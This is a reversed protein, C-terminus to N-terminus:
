HSGSYFAHDRIGVCARAYQLLSAPRLCQCKCMFPLSTSPLSTSPLATSSLCEADMHGSMWAAEDLIGIATTASRMIDKYMPSSIDHQRFTAGHLAINMTRREESEHLPPVLRPRSLSSTDPQRSGAKSKEEDLVLVVGEYVTRWIADDELSRQHKDLGCVFCCRVADGYRRGFKADVMSLVADVNTFELVEHGTGVPKLSKAANQVEHIPAKMCLEILLIGLAFVTKNSIMSASSMLQSAAPDSQHQQILPQAKMEISIFPYKTLLAGDREFLTIDTCSWPKSLWPTDHLRLVGFALATALRCSDGYSLRATGKGTTLVDALSVAALSDDDILRVKPRKLMHRTMTADVLHGLCKGGKVARFQKLSPCLNHVERLNAPNSPPPTHVTAPTNSHSLEGPGQQSTDMATSVEFNVPCLEAEVLSWRVHKAASKSTVAHHVIVRCLPEERESAARDVNRVHLSVKHPVQCSRRLSKELVSFITSAYAQMHSFKQNRPRSIDVASKQQNDLTILSENNWAIEDLLETYERKKAAFKLGDFHHRLSGQMKERLAKDMAPDSWMIEGNRDMLADLVAPEICERVLNSICDRFIREETQLMRSLKAEDQSHHRVSIVVPIAALVLAAVEIGAM